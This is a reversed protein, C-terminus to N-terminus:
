YMSDILQQYNETVVFRRLKLTNNLEIGKEFPKEVLRFQTVREFSKFASDQNVLKAIEGKILKNVLDNHAWEKMGGNVGNEKAWDAVTDEHVAVLAGLTKQDQGVLMVHDIYPSQKLRDEIPTPEINEGGMLVITDKSRGVFVLDGDVTIRMLDGTNFWGDDTLVEKTKKENKYYGMMVQPGRVHLTGKAGKIHTIDKGNEDLLKYETGDIPRGCTGPVNHDPTRASIIPSTETLGYGNLIVIGMAAFFEDIYDPLAGGGSISARICGGTAELVKKFAFEHAAQRPLYLLREGITGLTKEFTEELFGKKEYAIELGEAKVKARNHEVAIGKFFNFVDERGSDKVKEIIRNYVAEWIRPVAPVFHPKVNRLDDGIHKVDTYTLSCGKVFFMYEAIRGFLHWPPLLTLGREGPKVEMAESVRNINFAFNGQSLMVGKPEGTTGSTYVICALDEPKINHKREAMEEVIKSNAKIASQGKQILDSMTMSEYGDPGQEDNMIIFLKVKQEYNELGKSIKEIQAANHVFIIETEAHNVIFAIENGTSDTGRPVDVAGILQIAFNALPWEPGVDAFLGIHQGPGVGLELLGAALDDVKERVQGFTVSELPAKKKRPDRYQYAVNEAYNHMAAAIAESLTYFM